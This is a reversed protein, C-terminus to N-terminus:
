TVSVGTDSQAFLMAEAERRKVLGPLVNTGARNWRKIQASVADYDGANLKKLLTSNMFNGCGLNYIWCALADYQNQTLPVTVNRSICGEVLELHSLLRKDAQEQTFKTGHHIDPGTSGWGCTWVSVADQYADLKCGEFRKILNIGTGSVHM